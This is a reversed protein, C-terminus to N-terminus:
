KEMEKVLKEFGKKTTKSNATIRQKRSEYFWIDIDVLKKVLDIINEEKPIIYEWKKAIQKIVKDFIKQEKKTLEYKWFELSKAYEDGILKEVWIKYNLTNRYSLLCQWIEWVSWGLNDWFYKVIKDELWEIEKLWYEVDKKELHEVLYYDSTNKLKAHNYLEEIYYSDSTLCIIHALHNVKTLAIFFKFLEEVLLLNNEKDIIINKLYQFEDLIIVPKIWKENAKKLKDFMVWFINTKIAKEDDLDWGFFGFDVKIWSVIEKVKWKLDEPFFINKFDNFNTILIRRMDLYNVAYKKQDLEKIVKEILTTKWTSKPWYVFLINSPSNWLYNNIYEQEAVRNIFPPYKDFYKKSM